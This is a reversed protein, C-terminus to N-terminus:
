QHGKTQQQLENVIAMSALTFTSLRKASRCARQSAMFKERNAARWARVSANFKEINAARWARTRAREKERNAAYRARKRAREKDKQEDTMKAWPTRM